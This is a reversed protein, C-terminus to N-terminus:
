YKNVCTQDTHYVHVQQTTKGCQSKQVPKAAGLFPLIDPNAAVDAPTKGSINKIGVCRKVAASANAAFCALIKNMGYVSVVHICTNGEIDQAALDAKYQMLLKATRLDGRCCAIHLATKLQKTKAGVNAGAELLLTVIAFQGENTALHLATWGDEDVSNIDILVVKQKLM